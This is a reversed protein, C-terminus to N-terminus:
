GTLQTGEDTMRLNESQCLVSDPLFTEDMDHIWMM